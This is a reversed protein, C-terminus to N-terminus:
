DLYYCKSSVTGADENVSVIAWGRKELYGPINYETFGLNSTIEKHTHGDITISIRSDGQYNSPM